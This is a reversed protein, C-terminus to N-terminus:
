IYALIGPTSSKDLAVEDRLPNVSIRELCRLMSRQRPTVITLTLPESGKPYGSSSSHPEQTRKDPRTPCQFLHVSAEQLSPLPRSRKTLEHDGAM